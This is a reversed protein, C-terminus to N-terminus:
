SMYIGGNVDLTAGTVYSADDSVLFAIAAAVEEPRALRRLPIGSLIKQREAETRAQWKANVRATLVVSPAVANISIGHPGLEAAMHRTFGLLGAKAASYHPGSLLSYLRGAISSVNVIRGYGQKKMQPVAAQTAIFASRLDLRLIHDWEEVSIDEFDKPLTGEGANNVLIELRGWKEVVRTVMSRVQDPALVDCEIVLVERGLQRIRDGVKELDSLTRASVAVRAGREALVAATVAGIGRSAGTVLAVRDNLNV